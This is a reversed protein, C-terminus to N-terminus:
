ANKMVGNPYIECVWKLRTIREINNHGSGDPINM